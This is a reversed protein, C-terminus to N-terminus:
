TAYIESDIFKQCHLKLKNFQVSDPSILNFTEVGNDNGLRLHTYWNPSIKTYPYYYSKKNKFYSAMFGAGGDNLIDRRRMSSDLIELENIFSLHCEIFKRCNVFIFNPYFRVSILESCEVHPEAIIDHEPKDLIGICEKIMEGNHFYMDDHCFLVYDYESMFKKCFHNYVCIDPLPVPMDEDYNLDIINKLPLYSAIKTYKAYPKKEKTRVKWNLQYAYYSCEVEPYIKVSRNCSLICQAALVACNASYGLVVAIKKM